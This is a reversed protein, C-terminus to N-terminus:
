ILGARRVQVKSWCARLQKNRCRAMGLCALAAAPMAISGAADLICTFKITFQRRM